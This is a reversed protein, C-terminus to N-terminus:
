HTLALAGPTTGASASAVTYIRGANASDFGYLSINPTGKSAVGVIWNGKSEAGLATIGNAASYPSSPAATLAGGAGVVYGSISNDGNNAVYIYKGANDMVVSFPTDGTTYKAGSTLRGDTGITYLTLGPDAGSRALYLKSGDPTIALSNDSTAGSVPNFQFPQDVFKGATTNFKCILTGDTGVTAYIYSANPAIHVEHPTSTSSIFITSDNPGITGDSAITFATLITSQLTAADKGLVILWKGDPSTELSAVAISQLVVGNAIKSLAGKTGIQFGFVGQATGVYLYKNSRTVALATPAFQNTGDTISVPTGTIATLSGSTSIQYGSVTKSGANGVYLYNGTGSGTDGGGGSDDSTKDFFGGCGGLLLVACSMAGLFFRRSNLVTGFM